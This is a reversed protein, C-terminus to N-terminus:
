SITPSHFTFLIPAAIAVVVAVVAGVVAGVVAAAFATVADVAVVVVNGEVKM